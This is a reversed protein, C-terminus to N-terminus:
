RGDVAGLDLRPQLLLEQGPSLCLHRVVHATEGPDAVVDFVEPEGDSPAVLKHEGSVLAHGDPFGIIARTPGDWWNARGEPVPLSALRCLTGFLDRTSVPAERHEAALDPHWVVLPVHVNSEWPEDRRHFRDHDGLPAGVDSTLVVITSQLLNREALGEFLSATATDLDLLTSDYVDRLAEIEHPAYRPRRSDARRMRARSQDTKLGRLIRTPDGLVAQRAKASPLRPRRAEALDVFAFFPTAPTGDIWDLLDTVFLPAADKFRDPWRQDPRGGRPAPWDPSLEQSRDGRVLKAATARGAEGRHSAAFSMTRETFGQLVNSAGLLPNAVWARTRYGNAGFHEALTLHREDLWPWARDIGTTEAPLGTLLAAHAALSWTRPSYAREFVIADTAAEALWPSTERTAGYAQLRDARVSDWTVVLVNLPGDTDTRAAAPGGGRITWWVLLAAAFTMTASGVTVVIRAMSDTM